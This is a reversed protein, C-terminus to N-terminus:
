NGWAHVHVAVASLDTANAVQSGAAVTNSQTPNDTGTLTLDSGSNAQIKAGAAFSELGLRNTGAVTSGRDFVKFDHTHASVPNYAIIKENTKDYEFTYGDASSLTISHVTHFGMKEQTISEGGTPYSSDFTITGIWYRLDGASGRKAPAYTLAM